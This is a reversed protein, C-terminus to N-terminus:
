ADALGGPYIFIGGYAPTNHHIIPTQRTALSVMGGVTGRALGGGGKFIDRLLGLVSVAGALTVHVNGRLTWHGRKSCKKYLSKKPVAIYLMYGGLM